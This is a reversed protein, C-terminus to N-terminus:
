KFLDLWAGVWKSNKREHAEAQFARGELDVQHIESM